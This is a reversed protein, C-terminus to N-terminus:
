SLITLCKQMQVIKAGFLPHQGFRSDKKRKQVFFLLFGFRSDKKNHIFSWFFRGSARFPM